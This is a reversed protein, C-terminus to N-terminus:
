CMTYFRLHIPSYEYCSKVNQLHTMNSVQGGCSLVYQDPFAQATHGDLSIPYAMPKDCNSSKKNPDVKEVDDIYPLSGLFGGIVLLKWKNAVISSTTETATTSKAPSTTEISTTTPKPEDMCDEKQNTAALSMDDARLSSIRDQLLVAIIVIYRFSINM